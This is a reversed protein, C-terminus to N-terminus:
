FDYRIGFGLLQVNEQLFSYQTDKGNLYQLGARFTHDTHYGRWMWGALLNVNGGWNVEQRLHVNLAFYPAGRIGTPCPTQYEFGTQVEWPEAGGSTYIAAWGVEFYLRLNDTPFYGTGLVIADRSYNLRDYGPNKLLFEDGLHSSIHYYGLKWQFPGNRYALPVGARFDVAAVDRDEQPLLRVFAAGEVQLEWGEALESGFTGYRLISARGGLASDWFITGDSGHLFATSLRPDREAALYSKYVVADALLHWTWNEDSVMPQSVFPASEPLSQHTPATASPNNYPTEYTAPVSLGSAPPPSTLIWKVLPDSGDAFPPVQPLDGHLISESPQPEQAFVGQAPIGACICVWCTLLLPRIVFGAQRGQHRSGRARM